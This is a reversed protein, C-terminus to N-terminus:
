PLKHRAADTLHARLCTVQGGVGAPKVSVFGREAGKTAVLGFREAM